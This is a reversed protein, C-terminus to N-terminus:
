ALPEFCYECYMEELEDQSVDSAFFPTFALGDSVNNYPDNLEEEDYTDAVCSRCYTNGNMTYGEIFWAKKMTMTM